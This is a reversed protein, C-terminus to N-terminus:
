CIFTYNVKGGWPALNQEAILEIANGGKDIADFFTTPNIVEIDFEQAEKIKVSKKGISDTLFLINNSHLTFITIM